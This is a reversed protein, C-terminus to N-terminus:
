RRARLQPLLFLRHHIGRGKNPHRVSFPSGSSDLTPSHLRITTPSTGVLVTRSGVVTSLRMPRWSTKHTDVIVGVVDRRDQCTSSVRIVGKALEHQLHKALLDAAVEHDVSLAWWLAKRSPIYKPTEPDTFKLRLATWQGLHQYAPFLTASLSPQSM